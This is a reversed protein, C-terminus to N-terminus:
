RMEFEAYCKTPGVFQVIRYRGPVLNEKISKTQLVIRTSFPADSNEIACLYWQEDWQTEEPYYSLRVWRDGDYFEIFPIYYFYFGRGPNQNILECTINETDLQYTTEMTRLFIHNYDSELCVDLFCEQNQNPEPDINPQIPSIGTKSKYCASIMILFVIFLGLLVQLSKRM